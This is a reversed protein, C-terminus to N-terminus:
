PEPGIMVTSWRLCAISITVSLTSPRIGTTRCAPSGSVYVVMSSARCASLTPTAAM